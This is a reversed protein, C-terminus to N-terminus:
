PIVVSHQATTVLSGSCLPDPQPPPSSPQPTGLPLAGDAAESVGTEMVMKGNPLCM